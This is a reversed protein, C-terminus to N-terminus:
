VPKYDLVKWDKSTLEVYHYHVVDNKDFEGNKNTDEITRFYLRSKSEVLSWDVLEQFDSSIKTFRTGSIDSLYLSKIDSADLKGDKNTDMDALTYVLIQQKTKDSVSKLYTATQILVPKDTLARISDSGVEQFKLNRLYGTIENEGYNSIKFSLDSVNSASDYRAKSNGGYINLDGVPHILYNTGQLQIPLDAIEIQATDVKVAAKESKSANEYIVKPKEPAEKQCSAFLVAIGFFLIHTNKM